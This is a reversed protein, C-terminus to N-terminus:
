QKYGSLPEVAPATLRTFDETNLPEKYLGQVLWLGSEKIRRIPSSNGLWLNSPNCDECLSISSILKSELDLRDKKSKVEFIAFSFNNKIYQSVEKEVLKQKTFDVLPSYKDKNARSTLDWNWQELFQDNKKSLLARGINKRFISRDKNEVLFHERLRKILRGDGTHTGVRVIREGGHANENTEFLIYIGNKPIKSEDFPFRYRKINQFINHLNNCIDSM